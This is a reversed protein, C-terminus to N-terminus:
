GGNSYGRHSLHAELKQRKRALFPYDGPPYLFKHLTILDALGAWQVHLLNHRKSHIKVKTLDLSAHLREAVGRIFRHTGLWGLYITERNGQRSTGVTGDGDLAGRLFHGLYEDPVAPMPIDRNSKAPLIGHQEILCRVLRISYISTYTQEVRTGNRNVRSRRSLKNTSGLRSRIGVIIEEDRTCCALQLRGNPSVNGDTLIYGIDYAMSPSWTKFYDHGTTMRTKRVGLRKAWKRVTHVHVGLEAALGDGEAPYRNALISEIAPSLIRKM